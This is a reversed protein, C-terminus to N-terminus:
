KPRRVGTIGDDYLLDNPTHTDQRMSGDMDKSRRKVRMEVCVNCQSPRQTTVHDVNLM